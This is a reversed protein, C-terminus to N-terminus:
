PKADFSRRRTDLLFQLGAYVNLNSPGQTSRGVQLMLTRGPLLDCTATVGWSLDGKEGTASSTSGYVQGDVTMATTLQYSVAGGLVLNNRPDPAGPLSAGFNGFAYARRFQKGAALLLAHDFKGTGLGSAASATPITLFYHLSLGPNRADEERFRWKFEAGTDGMGSVPRTGTLRQSAMGSGLTLQINKSYGYNIETGMGDSRTDTDRSTIYATNEEIHQYEATGPDDVNYPPGALAPM